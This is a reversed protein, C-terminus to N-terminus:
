AGKKRKGKVIAELEGIFKGLPQFGAEADQAVMRRIDDPTYRGEIWTRCTERYRACESELEQVRRKLRENEAVLKQDDSGLPKSMPRAVNSLANKKPM